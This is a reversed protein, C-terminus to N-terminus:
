NRRKRGTFMAKILNEKQALSTYIVGAIHGLILIVCLYAGTTHLVEVWRIGWYADTTSMWGSVATVALALLLVVIMAGGVPNHGVYRTERGTLMDKLYILITLPSKVFDSFRAHKGGVFGWILRFGVLGLLIYGLIIHQKVHNDFTLWLAVFTAVLSWHFLRVAIDWVRVTDSPAPGDPVDTKNLVRNPM